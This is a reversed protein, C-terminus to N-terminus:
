VLAGNWATQASEVEMVRINDIIQRVGAVRRVCAVALQREYYSRVNGEIFVVEQEVDVQIQKLAPLHLIDLFLRVRDVLDEDSSSKCILVNPPSPALTPM